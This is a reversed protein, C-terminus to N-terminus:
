SFGPQNRDRIVAQYEHGVPCIWWVKKGSNATFEYPTLGENLNPHWEAVVKPNITALDNYGKLVRHGSCYSCNFGRQTRKYIIQQYAHQKDCLWWVNKSSNPIVDCAKLDGNMTPHWQAAINPHTTALDNVGVILKTM